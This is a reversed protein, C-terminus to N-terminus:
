EEQPFSRMFVGPQPLKKAESCANEAEKLVRKSDWAPDYQILGIYASISGEERRALRSMLRDAFVRAESLVTLPLLVLFEAEGTRFPIDSFERITKAIIRGASRVRDQASEFAAGFNQDIAPAEEALEIVAASFLSGSARSDAILEDLYESLQVETYLGSLSDRRAGLKSGEGSEREAREIVAQTNLLQIGYMPSEGRSPDTRYLEGQVKEYLFSKADSILYDLLYIVALASSILNLNSAEKGNQRMVKSLRKSVVTEIEFSFLSGPNKLCSIEGGESVSAELVIRSLLVKLDRVKEYFKPMSQTFVPRQGKLIETKLHPLIYRKKIWLLDAETKMGFASFRFDATREIQRCYDNLKELYNKSIISEFMFQWNGTIDEIIDSVAEPNGSADRLPGFQIHRFGYFFEKLIYVLVMTLHLPDEPPILEFGKPFRLLPEFYPYMDPYSRIEEWGAKPFLQILLDIGKQVGIHIWPRKEQRAPVEPVPEKPEEETKREAQRPVPLIDQSTLGLFEIIEERQHPFFSSYPEYVLSASKMLLPYLRFKIDEFVAIVSEKAMAYYEHLREAESGEKPVSHIDAEYVNKIAAEIHKRRDLDILRVIPKYIERVLNECDPFSVKRPSRELRSLEHHVAEVEWDMIVSLIRLDIPNKTKYVRNKEHRSLLGRVSLVLNEIPLFFIRDGETIFDPHVHEPINVIFSLMSVVAESKKMIRHHDDAAELNMKIRQLYPPRKVAKKNEKKPPRPARSSPPKGTQKPPVTRASTDSKRRNEDKIRDYRKSVEDATREIGIQGGLVLSMKRAEEPSLQGINRRTRDLEGPEYRVPPQSGM